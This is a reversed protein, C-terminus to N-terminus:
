EQVFTEQCIHALGFSLPPFNLSGIGPVLLAGHLEAAGGDDTSAISAQAGLVFNETDGAFKLRFGPVPFSKLNLQNDEYLNM